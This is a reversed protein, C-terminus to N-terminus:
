LAKSPSRPLLQFHQAGKLSHPRTAQLRCLCDRGLQQPCGRDKNYWDPRTQVVAMDRCSQWLTRPETACVGKMYALPNSIMRALAVGGVNALPKSIMRVFEFGELYGLTEPNDPCVGMGKLRALVIPIM